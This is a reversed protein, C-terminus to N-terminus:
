HGSQLQEQLQRLSDDKPLRGRAAGIVSLAERRQGAESLAVAYVYAYRATGGDLEVAKGLSALADAGHGQRVQLLGLAHIPGAAAPAVSVARRLWREAEAERDQARYLDALNVMAPVFLPDLRLAVMLEREADPAKGLREDIQAINIHSEPREAAVTESAILEDVAKRLRARLLPDTHEDDSGAVSRATEVRVAKASDVLLPASMKLAVSPDLAALGRAAGLRVLPDRDQTAAALAAAVAQSPEAQSPLTALASARVLSPLPQALVKLLAPTAAAGAWADDFASTFPPVVGPVRFSHDRRRDVGMYTKEPMHCSVCRAADTQPRQHHHTSVDFVDARHCQTCLANGDAKLKLSHPDHCNTCTVGHAYMKSQVFSGFEFDEADIQGDAHYIGPEILQPLYGDLLEQGVPAGDTLAQRRAHCPFCVQAQTRADEPAGRPSAIRQGASWLGWQVTRGAHLQVVLGNGRDPSAGARAWQLHASGPGHCAECAVDLDSWTTHYRDDAATYNKHLDTSHCAACMFNWNSDREPLGERHLSYWHQGGQTVPRADWAVTLAQLRGGRGEVLYQQLPYVGFTYRIQLTRSAQGPAGLQVFYRDGQHSLREVNDLHVPKTDTFDGLVTHATAVQMAEAHHSTKWSATQAAHCGACGASGVFRPEARAASSLLLFLLAGALCIAWSKWM